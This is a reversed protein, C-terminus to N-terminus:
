HLFEHWFVVHLVDLAHNPGHGFLCHGLIGFDLGDLHVSQAFRGHALCYGCRRLNPNDLIDSYCNRKGFQICDSHLLEHRQHRQHLVCDEVLHGYLHFGLIGSCLGDLHVSQAFRGHALCCGCRRLNPNDLIDSYCNRKGFQICDSHLLEHRQHRQHLVCDEVLHGYLHFGLIGSCLGDLHVSQAFRGHALCCGCRRLNPNDSIDFYYNRMGFQIYSMHVEAFRHFHGFHHFRGVHRCHGIRLYHGVHRCHDHDLFSLRCRYRNPNDLIDFSLSRM